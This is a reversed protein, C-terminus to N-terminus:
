IWPRKLEVTDVLKLNFKEAMHHGYAVEEPIALHEPTHADSGLVMKCGEEGAIKWFLENPYHRGCRYGVFNLEMPVDHENAVRCLKRMQETYLETYGYDKIIDPHAIYTFTNTRLAEIVQDVYRLIHNKDAPLDSVYTEGIENGLFHQGLIFYDFQYDRAYNMVSEHYEPYYELEIGLLIQIDKEYEKQLNRVSDVYDELLEFYMRANSVSGDKFPIPAHDSFGLIKLGREIATEVFVRDPDNNHGHRCRITHTHYNAIMQMKDTM